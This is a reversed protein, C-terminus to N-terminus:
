HGEHQKLKQGLTNDTNKTRTGCTFASTAKGKSCTQRSCVQPLFFSYRLARVGNKVEDKDESPYFVILPFM